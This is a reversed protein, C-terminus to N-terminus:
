EFEVGVIYGGLATSSHVVVGTVSEEQNEMHVELRTHLAIPRRSLFSLGASSVNRTRVYMTENNSGRSVDTAKFSESWSIRAAGRKSLYADREGWQEASKLWTQIIDSKDNEISQIPAMVQVKVFVLSSLEEVAM